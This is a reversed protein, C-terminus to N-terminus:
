VDALDLRQILARTRRDRLLFSRRGDSEVREEIRCDPAARWEMEELQREFEERSILGLAEDRCFQRLRESFEAALPTRNRRERVNM